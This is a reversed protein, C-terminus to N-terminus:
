SGEPSTRLGLEIQPDASERTAQWLRRGLPHKSYFVLSYLFVKKGIVRIPHSEEPRADRYGIRTMAADFKELLFRIAYKNSLGSAAWQDRWDPDDILNAIRTNGPDEFYQRFNLRVDHGLM